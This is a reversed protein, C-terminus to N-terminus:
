RQRWHSFGTIVALNKSWLKEGLSSCDAMAFTKRVERIGRTRMAMDVLQQQV